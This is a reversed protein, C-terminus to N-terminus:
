APPEDATTRDGDPDGLPLTLQGGIPGEAPASLLRRAVSQALSWASSLARKHLVSLALCGDHREARVADSYRRLLAHM